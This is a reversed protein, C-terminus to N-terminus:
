KEEMSLTIKQTSKKYPPIFQESDLNVTNGQVTVTTKVRNGLPLEGLKEILIRKHNLAIKGNKIEGFGMGKHIRIFLLTPFAGTGGGGWEITQIVFVGNDTVGELAYKFFHEEKSSPPVEVSFYKGTKQIKSPNHFYKNSTQSDLLNITVIQDGGDSIWTNLDKIIMPNIPQGGMIFYQQACKLTQNFDEVKTQCDEPFSQSLLISSKESTALELSLKAAEFNPDTALAKKYFEIAGDLDGSNKKEHGRQLFTDAASISAHILDTSFILIILLLIYSLKLTKM